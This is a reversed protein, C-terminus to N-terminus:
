ELCSAEIHPASVVFNGTSNYRQVLIKLLPRSNPKNPESEGQELKVEMGSIGREGPTDPVEISFHFTNFYFPDSTTSLRMRGNDLAQMVNGAGSIRSLIEEETLNFYTKWSLGPITILYTSKDRRIFWIGSSRAAIGTLVPESPDQELTWVDFYASDSTIYEFRLSGGKQELPNQVITWEKSSGDTPSLQTFSVQKSTGPPLYYEKRLCPTIKFDDDSDEQGEADEYENGEEDDYGDDEGDTEMDAEDSPQEDRTTDQVPARDEDKRGCGGILFLALGLLLLRRIAKMLVDM